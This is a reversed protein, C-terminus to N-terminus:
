LFKTVRGSMSSLTLTVDWMQMPVRPTDHQASNKTPLFIDKIVKHRIVGSKKGLTPNQGTRVACAARKELMIQELRHVYGLQRRRRQPYQAWGMLWLGRSLHAFKGVIRPDRIMFMLVVMIPVAVVGNIVATWFLARIPTLRTFSQVIPFNLALGILTAALLTAYFAKAELPKRALGSPWKLAEGVAYAAAIGALM